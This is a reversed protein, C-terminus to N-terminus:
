TTTYAGCWTAGALAYCECDWLHDQTYGKRFQWKGDIKAQSTVQRVYELPMGVPVSWKRKSEGRLSQMLIERFSDSHVQVLWIQNDGEAAQGRTGEYPDILKPIFPMSLNEHGEVACFQHKDCAEYTELRRYNCDIMVREAGYKDGIAALDAFTACNGFDILESDGSEYFARAAWWVHAKQVDAGIFVRPKRAPDPVAGRAYPLARERLVDDPPAEIREYFPEALNEYVFTRMATAGKMKAKLFEVAIAGFDGSSFPVMFSTVRYSRTSAKANLNTPVWRGARVIRMREANDIRAGGPTVYHASEAVRDLDWSGDARKAGADWRLGAGDRAGMGFVFHGGAPDHCHWERRDGDSWEIFIPDEDSARKQQPDPSSLFVIHAFPYSATRKRAMDASYDPWLSVEDCLVLAWGDQKFAQRARPWTVRFDMTPFALDHQTDSTVSRLAKATSAACRLGRKVRKDMFREASVQDGTVYLVPQPRMAVAYRIANLLVNESGGARACKLVAVERVDLDTLAEVPEKWYPMYVADYPGHIPTDYNPARSFDVNAEAWQWINLPPPATHLARRREAFAAFLNDHGNM